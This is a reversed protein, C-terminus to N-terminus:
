VKAKKTDRGLKKMKLNDRKEEQKKEDKTRM